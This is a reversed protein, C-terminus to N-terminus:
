QALFKLAVEGAAPDTKKVFGVIDQRVRWPSLLLTSKQVDTMYSKFHIELWGSHYKRAVEVMGVRGGRFLIFDGYKAKAISDILVTTGAKDVAPLSEYAVQMEQQRHLNVYAGVAVLALFTCIILGLVVLLSVKTAKKM